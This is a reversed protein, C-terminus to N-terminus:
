KSSAAVQDEEYQEIGPIPITGKLARVVQGIKKLDPTLYERPIAAEDTIRFKWVKRYNIGEARAIKPLDVPAPIVPLALTREASEKDGMAELWAADEKRIRVEQELAEKELRERELDREAVCRRNWAALKGKILTEAEELPELLKDRQKLSSKWTKHAAEVIPGFTREIEGQLAKVMKLFGEAEQQEDPGRIQFTRATEALPGVKPEFEALEGM